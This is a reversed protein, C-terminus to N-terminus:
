SRDVRAAYCGPKAYHVHLYSASSNEFLRGVLTSLAHGHTLDCGVLMGRDDYARVALQRALLQAPIQDRADYTQEGERVYIAFRSRYPSAVAHHEYNVLVVQEGPQADTLSVRCPYRQGEVARMRVAAHRALAEDDLAFLHTFHESPLGRVHFTM